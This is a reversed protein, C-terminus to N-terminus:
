SMIAAKSSGMTSTGRSGAPNPAPFLDALMHVCSNELEAAQPYEDKDVINKGISEAM